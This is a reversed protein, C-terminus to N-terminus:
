RGIEELGSLFGTLNLVPLTGWRPLTGRPLDLLQWSEELKMLPLRFVEQKEKPREKVHSGVELHNTSLSVFDAYNPYLMVYGRLYVMEIFYKKWSKTWNNSRVDPVVIREIEMTSESLRAGLYDHFERWHEPFYVAGWSCPIQSLYPTSPDAVGHKVFLGRPDFTKRGEPHLEINKQQYLSIGFLQNTQDRDEGYRYRLIGMKIWAYFLPSLEVDDELLLGYSHNSYPYWSEVIAPLLGGHIVRRHTFVSGHRWEFEGVMHITELDSSQEMNLRLGVSDGFFRAQSLSTMLRALSQPRDQTIVSVDINPVNWNTWETLSLSGMWHTHMLDEPPIRVLTARENKVSQTAPDDVIFIVDVERELRQLWDYIMPYVYRGPSLTDYELYCSSRSKVGSAPRPDSHLLIKLFHGSHDLKCLLHLVLHLDDINPLLFVFHGPPSRRSTTPPFPAGSFLRSHNTPSDSHCVGNCWNVDPDGHGRVIGGLRDNRSLSIARGLDSWDSHSMQILASPLTFPPLLYSAPRMEPSPPVCRDDMVGRPGVPLDAAMPCLLMDRTRGSLGDFGADDLLLIWKSSAQAATRLVGAIPDGGDRWPHLSVDPHNLNEPVLGMLERISARSQPLLSEPCVVFVKSVCSLSGLFPSLTDRFTPLSSSTVPLIATLSGTEIIRATRLDRVVSSFKDSNALNTNPREISLQSDQAETGAPIQVPISLFVYLVFLLPVLCRPTCHRRYAM